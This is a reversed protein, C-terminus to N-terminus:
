RNVVQDRYDHWGDYGPLLLAGLMEASTCVPRSKYQDALDAPLRAAQELGVTIVVPSEDSDDGQCNFIVFDGARAVDFVFEILQRSIGRIHFACGSFPEKGNLGRASFEVSTGNAFDVVYFGFEDPGTYRERALVKAVPAPDIPTSDDGSFHQLYLDFSM